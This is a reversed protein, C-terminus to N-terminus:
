LNKKYNTKTPFFLSGIKRPGQKKFYSTLLLFYSFDQKQFRGNHSLRMENSASILFELSFFEPEEYM